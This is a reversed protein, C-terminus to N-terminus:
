RLSGGSPRATSAQRPGPSSGRRLALGFGLAWWECFYWDPDDLGKLLDQILRVEFHQVVDGERPLGDGIGAAQLALCLDARVTGVIDERFPQGTVKGVSIEDLLHRLDKPKPGSRFRDECAKLGKAVISKLQQALDNDPLRRREIPWRGPSCPGAGDTFPQPVGKRLPLLAPGVGLWGRGRKPRAMGGLESEEDSTVDQEVEPMDKIPRDIGIVDLKRSAEEVAEITALSTQGPPDKM